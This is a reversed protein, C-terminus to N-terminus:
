NNKKARSKKKSKAKKSPKESAEESPHVECEETECEETECEEDECTGLLEVGQDVPAEEVVPAEEIVPAKAVQQDQAPALGNAALRAARRKRRLRPSAMINDELFHMHVNNYITV